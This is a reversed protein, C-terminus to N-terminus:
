SRQQQWDRRAQVATATFDSFVGDVGLDFFTVYEAVADGEAAKDRSSRFDTPLFRNENRMTWIHVLLGAAHARDVLGTDGALRAKKDRAIVMGKHPGIGDAYEAIIALEEATTMDNYGRPDGAAVLDYAATNLEMLQILTLPTRGRLQRLNGTEMSQIIVKADRHNLNRRDLRDILLDNLDLGIGAFYTPHKTEVYVGVGASEAIDVVEDFTLIQELGALPVNQPRTEPIRERARLTKIEALTFDETFWGTLDKGDISRTTQRDAFEPRDAVDTTGGIENEHRVVLEGDSTSVVDPEIYDAGQEIALEYSPRTHELRQGPVGRHGIVLPVSILPQSPHDQVM